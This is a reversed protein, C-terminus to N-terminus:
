QYKQRNHFRKQNQARMTNCDALKNTNRTPQSTEAHYPKKAPPSKPVPELANLVKKSRKVSKNLM